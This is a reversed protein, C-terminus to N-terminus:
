SLKFEMSLYIDFLIEMFKKSKIGIFFTIFPLDIPSRKKSERERETLYNHELRRKLFRLLLFKSTNLFIYIVSTYLAFFGNSHIYFVRRHFSSFFRRRILMKSRDIVHLECLDIM